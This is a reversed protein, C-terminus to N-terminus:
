TVCLYSLRALSERNKFSLGVPFGMQGAAGGEELGGAEKKGQRGSAAGGDSGEFGEPFGKGDRLVEDCVPEEAGGRGKGGGPRGEMVAKFGM